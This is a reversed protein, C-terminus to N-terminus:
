GRTKEVPRHPRSKVLVVQRFLVCCISVGLADAALDWWEATRGAQMVLQLIELLGGFCLAALAARWWAKQPQVRPLTRFAQAILLSLLGYAGAHQLKDWGLLGPIQPPSPILSLWAIIGGWFLTALVWKNLAVSPRGSTDLTNRLTM